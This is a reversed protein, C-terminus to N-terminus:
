MESVYQQVGRPMVPAWHSLLDPRWQADGSTDWIYLRDLEIGEDALRWAHAILTSRKRAFYELCVVSDDERVYCLTLYDRLAVDRGRKPLEPPLFPRHKALIPEYRMM